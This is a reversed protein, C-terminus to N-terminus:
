DFDVREGCDHCRGFGILHHTCPESGESEVELHDPNLPEPQHARIVPDGEPLQVGHASALAQVRELEAELLVSRCDWALLLMECLEESLSSVLAVAGHTWATRPRRVPPREPMTM